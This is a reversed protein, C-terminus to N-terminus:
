KFYDDFFDNDSDEEVIEEEKKKKSNKVKKHIVFPLLVLLLIVLPIIFEKYEIIKEIVGMPNIIFVLLFIGIIIKNEFKSEKEPEDYCYSYDEVVENNYNTNGYEFPMSDIQSKISRTSDYNGIELFRKEQPTLDDFSDPLGIQNGKVIKITRKTSNSIHLIYYEYPHKLILYKVVKCLADIILGIGVLSFLLVVYSVPPELIFSYSIPIITMMIGFTIKTMINQKLTIKDSKFIKNPKFKIFM